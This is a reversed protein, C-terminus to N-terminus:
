EGYAVVKTPELSVIVRGDLPGEWPNGNYRLSLRDILSADPDDTIQAMGRLELYRHDDDPDLILVSIKPNRQLHKFKARPKTTSFQLASGTWEFWVVSTQPAAGPDVTAVIAMAKKEVIDTHGAPITAM